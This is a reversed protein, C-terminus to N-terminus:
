QLKALLGAVGGKFKDFGYAELVEKRLFHGDLLDPPAEKKFIKILAAAIEQVSDPNILIGLKGDLLADRSGDVNGALVPKGCALAELFVIGFGEQRSPMAFVDCLNYYDVLQQDAVYGTLVVYNELNLSKVLGKIRQSDDGEGVLFYKVDPVARVILPLAKIVTDYGKCKELSSLRAVTLIIKDQESLDYQALLQASKEKSYFRKGDITNPLMFIKGSVEEIQEKLKEATYRSISVVMKANELAKIKWYNNLSWVETGYTFVIYQLNFFNSLFYILPSFNIHACFISDPRFILIDRVTKLVFIIKSLFTSDKLSLLRTKQNFEQLARLLDRNYREIGGTRELNATLFLIKM